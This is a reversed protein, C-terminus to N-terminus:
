VPTSSVTFIITGEAVFTSGNRGQKALTTYKNGAESAWQLPATIVGGTSIVWGAFVLNSAGYFGSFNGGGSSEVLPLFPCGTISINNTPTDTITTFTGNLSFTLIITNGIRLYAGDQRSYSKANSMVPTWVGEIIGLANLSFQKESDVIRGDAGLLAVNNAKSPIPDPFFYLEDDNTLNNEILSDLVESSDCYNLSLSPLKKETKTPTSM